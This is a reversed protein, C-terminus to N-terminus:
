RDYGNEEAEEALQLLEIAMDFSEVTGEEYFNGSDDFDILVKIKMNGGFLAGDPVRVRFELM